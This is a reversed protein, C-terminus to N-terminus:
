AKGKAPNVRSLIDSLPEPGATPPAPRRPTAGNPDTPHALQEAEWRKLAEIQEAASKPRSTALPASAPTTKQSETVTGSGSGSGVRSMVRKDRERDRKAQQRKRWGDRTADQSAKTATVGHCIWTDRSTVFGQAVEDKLLRWDELSCQALGALVIDDAPLIGPEKEFWSEMWLSDYAGRSALSMRRRIPDRTVAMPDLLFRQARGQRPM